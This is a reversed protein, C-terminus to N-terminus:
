RQPASSLTRGTRRHRIPQVCVAHCQTVLIANKGVASLFVCLYHMMYDFIFNDSVCIKLAFIETSNLNLKGTSSQDM